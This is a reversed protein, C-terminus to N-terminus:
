STKPATATRRLAIETLSDIEVSAPWLIRVAAATHEPSGTTFFRETGPQGDKRDLDFEGLRRKVQRAVAGGTDILAVGPGACEQIVPRLFPYHTCGLVIVDVDRAVLPSVFSSVLSRTADSTLDGAEVCEVLGPAPQTIVQVEAAFQDLLAAFRASQLTGVTALVGIIKRRTAAVAPKVAPEMGIVPIDSFERRLAAAASATATNCAIVVAKCGCEVLFRTLTRSRELIFAPPKNGYPVQGSDAVYIFNELPLLRRLEQLVSLGGVGSDFVGVPSSSDPM